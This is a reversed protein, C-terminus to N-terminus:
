LLVIKKLELYINLCKNLETWYYITDKIGTNIFFHLMKLEFRTDPQIKNKYLNVIDSYRIGLRSTYFPFSPEEETAIRIGLRCRDVKLHKKYYDIEDLHDLVPIVNFGENALEVILQRYREPKYGNCVIYTEKSLKGQRFLEKVIYIDYASSTEIHSGNELVEDLVFSFHSSKTCYCYYYEGKYDAKAMAVNFMRRAKQIQQGIKPLYSIKCPTGYQKIIQMMPIDNFYLENEKVEFGEQPFHHTQTILDYYTLSM